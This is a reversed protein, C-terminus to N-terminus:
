SEVGPTSSFFIPPLLEPVISALGQRRSVAAAAIITAVAAAAAPSPALSRSCSRSSVPPPPMRRRSVPARTGRQGERPVHARRVRGSVRLEPERGVYRLPDQGHRTLTRAVAPKVVGLEVQDRPDVVHQFGGARAVRHQIQESLPREALNKPALIVRRLIDHGDLDDLVFWRVPVLGQEFNLDGLQHSSSFSSSSSSSYQRCVATTLDSACCDTSRVAATHGSHTTNYNRSPFPNAQINNLVNRYHTSLVATSSQQQATKEQAARVTNRGYSVAHLYTKYEHNSTAHRTCGADGSRRAVHTAWGVLPEVPEARRCVTIKCGSQTYHETYYM